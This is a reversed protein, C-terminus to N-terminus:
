QLITNMASLSLLFFLFLVCFLAVFVFCFAFFFLVVFGPVQRPPLNGRHARKLKLIVYLMGLGVLGFFLGSAPVLVLLRFIAGAGHHKTHSKWKWRGM